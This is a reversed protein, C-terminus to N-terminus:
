AVSEHVPSLIPNPSTAPSSQSALVRAHLAIGIGFFLWGANMTFLKVVHWALAISTDGHVHVDPAIREIRGTEYLPVIVVYGFALLLTGAVLFRGSWGKADRSLRWGLMLLFAGMVLM